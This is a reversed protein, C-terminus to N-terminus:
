LSDLKKIKERRSKLLEQRDMERIDSIDFKANSFPPDGVIDYSIINTITVTGDSEVKGTARQSVGFIKNLLNKL